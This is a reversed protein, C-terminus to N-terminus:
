GDAKMRAPQRGNLVLVVYVLLTIAYLLGSVVATKFGLQPTLLHQGIDLLLLRPSTFIDWSNWRLFRGIYIGFSSLALVGIAFLWGLHAGFRATVLAQMRQLSLSGLLVGALAFAFLLFADYWLPVGPFPRLHILDTVIYFANPLFILWLFATPLLFLPRKPGHFALEALLFPLWALLLNWILFFFWPVGTVLARALVLVVAFCSAFILLLLMLIHSKYSPQTTM